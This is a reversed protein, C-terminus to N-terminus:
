SKNLKYIKDFYDSESIITTIEILKLEKKLTMRPLIELFVKVTCKSCHSVSMFRWKKLKIDTDLILKNGCKPCKLTLMQENVDIKELNKINVSAIEYVDKIVHNKVIRCNYVRKFVSLEEEADYLADHLKKEDVKIKLDDVAKKLGLAKKHSLVKCTYEQIDLYGKLWSIDNIGYFECNRILEAIDDKAWSCLIDGEDFMKRLENFAEIFSCGEKNLVDITINTIKSVESSIQLCISPKIYRKLKKLETLRNDVKVAGIEIIENELGYKKKNTESINNFELDVIVFGM